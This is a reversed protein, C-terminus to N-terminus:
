APSWFVASCALRLARLVAAPGAAGAAFFGAAGRTIRLRAAAAGAAGAAFHHWEPSEVWIPLGVDCRCTIHAGRRRHFSSISSKLRAVSLESRVNTKFVLVSLGCVFFVLYRLPCVREDLFM